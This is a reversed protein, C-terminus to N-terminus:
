PEESCAGGAAGRSAQRFKGEPKVSMKAEYSMDRGRRGALTDELYKYETADM